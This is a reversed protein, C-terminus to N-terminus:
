EVKIILIKVKGIANPQTEIGMSADMQWLLNPM